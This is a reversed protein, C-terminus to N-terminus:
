AFHWDQVGVGTPNPALGGLVSFGRLGL